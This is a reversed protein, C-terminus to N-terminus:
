LVKLLKAALQAEGSAPYQKILQNLVAKARATENQQAEVLGLKYLTAPMKDSKPFDKVLLTFQEASKALASKTNETRYAEGLWFRTDAVYQGKPYAKLYANFALIAGKTDGKVLKNRAALYAIQDAQGAASLIPTSADNNVTASIGSAAPVNQSAPNSLATIRSDLDMYRDRASAKMETVTHNLVEIEGRLKDLQQQYAQLQQVLLFLGNGANGNADDNVADPTSATTDPMATASRSQTVASTATLDQIAVPGTSAGLANASFALLGLCVWTPVPHKM